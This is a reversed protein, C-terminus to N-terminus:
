LTEVSGREEDPERTSRCCLPDRGLLSGRHALLEAVWTTSAWASADTVNAKAPSQNTASGNSGNRDKHGLKYKASLLQPSGGNM